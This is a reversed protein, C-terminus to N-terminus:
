NMLYFGIVKQSHESPGIFEVAVVRDEVRVVRAWENIWVLQGNNLVFSLKIKQDEHLDVDRSSLFRIGTKSLNEVIMGCEAGLTNKWSGPLSVCKRFWSRTCLVANWHGGCKICTIKLQKNLKGNNITMHYIKSCEPCELRTGGTPGVPIIEFGPCTELNLNNM